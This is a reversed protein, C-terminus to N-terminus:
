KGHIKSAHLLLSGFVLMLLGSIFGSFFNARLDKRLRTVNLPTESVKIIEQDDIYAFYIKQNQNIRKLIEMELEDIKFDLTDGKFVKMARAIPDFNIFAGDEISSKNLDRTNTIFRVSNTTILIISGLLAVIGMIGFQFQKRKM